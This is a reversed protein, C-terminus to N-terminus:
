ILKTKGLDAILRWVWRAYQVARILLVLKMRNFFLLYKPFHRAYILHQHYGFTKLIRRAKTLYHWHKRIAPCARLFCTIKLIVHRKRNVDFVPQVILLEWPVIYMIDIVLWTFVYQLVGGCMSPSKTPFKINDLLNRCIDLVYVMQCMIALYLAANGNSLILPPAKNPCKSLIITSFCEELISSHTWRITTLSLLLPLCNLFTTAMLTTCTLLQLQENSSLFTCTSWNDSHLWNDGLDSDDSSLKNTTSSPTIGGRDLFANRSKIRVRM